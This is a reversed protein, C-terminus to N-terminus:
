PPLQAYSRCLSIRCLRTIIYTNRFDPKVPIGEVSGDRRVKCHTLALDSSSAEVTLKWCSKTRRLDRSYRPSAALKRSPTSVSSDTTKLKEYEIVVADKEAYSAPSANKYLGGNQNLSLGTKALFSSPVLAMTSFHRHCSFNFRESIEAGTAVTAGGLSFFIDFSLMSIRYPYYHDLLHHWGM